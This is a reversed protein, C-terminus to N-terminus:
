IDHDLKGLQGLPVVADCDRGPGAAVSPGNGCPFKDALARVAAFQEPGAAFPHDQFLACISGSVEGTEVEVQGRFSGSCDGCIEFSELRLCAVGVGFLDTDWVARNVEVAVDVVGFVDTPSNVCEFFREFDGQSDSGYLHGIEAFDKLAVPKVEQKCAFWCASEVDEASFGVVPGVDVGRLNGASRRLTRLFFSVLRIEDGRGRLQWIGKSWQTQNQPLITVQM